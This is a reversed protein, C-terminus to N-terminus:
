HNKPKKPRRGLPDIVPATQRFKEPSHYLAGDLERGLKEVESLAREILSLTERCDTASYPISQPFVARKIVEGRTHSKPWSGRTVRLYLQKSNPHRLWIGHALWDRKQAARSLISKLAETDSKVAIGKIAFIDLAMELREEARPERLVVRVEAKNLQLLLGTLMTLSHEVKAFCVMIRGILM